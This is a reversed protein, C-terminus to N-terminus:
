SIEKTPELISKVFESELVQERDEDSAEYRRVRTLTPRVQIGTGQFVGVAHSGLKPLTTSLWADEAAAREADSLRAWQQRKYELVFGYFRASVWQLARKWWPRHKAREKKLLEKRMGDIARALQHHVEDQIFQKTQNDM